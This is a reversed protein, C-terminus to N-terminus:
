EGRINMTQGRSFISDFLAKFGYSSIRSHSLTSVLSSTNSVVMDITLGFEEKIVEILLEKSITGEKDPSGGLFVFADLYEDAENGAENAAELDKLHSLTLALAVFDIKEM